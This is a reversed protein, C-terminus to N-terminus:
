RDDLQEGDVQHPVEVPGEKGCGSALAVLLFVALLALGKRFMEFQTM